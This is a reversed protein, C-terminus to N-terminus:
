VVGSIPLSNAKTRRLFRKLLGAATAMSVLSLGVAPIVVTKTDFQGPDVTKSYVSLSFHRSLHGLENTLNLLYQGAQEPGVDILNFTGNPSHLEVNDLLRILTFSPTPVGAAQFWLSVNQGEEVEMSPLVEMSLYRPPSRIRMSAVALRTEQESRINLTARCTINQGHDQARPQYKFVSTVTQVEGDVTELDKDEKLVTDGLLWQVTLHDAPYVDPVTCTLNRDQGVTMFDSGSIVPDKQFSRIRMSAVALRTEQESRINLTARCTINQGHDQARPQYKFVSTVTQVEGDVTELDKHEKLVKDGLLWQVTLHDAPYVDPVTCTLNRDQGVTMFDSGSIVPDKQFSRIRMSAVALRTEQESRINLTARCTINQGHDQARPQYKFVSTVTQVEGDVTELDKDEKLVTDGLLWQVTLHDAPYVDPVTCTLNRDQGVTM